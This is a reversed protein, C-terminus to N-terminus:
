FLVNTCITPKIIQIDLVIARYLFPFLSIYTIMDSSPLFPLFETVNDTCGRPRYVKRLIDLLVPFVNKQSVEGTVCLKRNSASLTWTLIFCTVHNVRCKLVQQSQIAVWDGICRTGPIERPYLPRPTVNIVWCCGDCVLGRWLGGCIGGIYTMGCFWVGSLAKYSRIQISM